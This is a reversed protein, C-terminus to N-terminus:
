ETKTIIKLPSPPAADDKVVGTAAHRFLQTMVITAMERDPPKDSLLMVRYTKALVTREAADAHLHAHSLYSRVCIRVLWFLGALALIVPFELRLLHWPEIKDPNPTKESIRNHFSILGWAGVVAIVLTALGWRLMGCWHGKQKSEWFKAPEEVERNLRYAVDLAAFKAELQKLLEEHEKAEKTRESHLDALKTEYETEHEELMQNSQRLIADLAARNGELTVGAKHMMAFMYSLNQQQQAPGKVHGQLYGLCEAAIASSQMVDKIKVIFAATPSKSHPFANFWNDLKQQLLSRVQEARNHQKYSAIGTQVEDRRQIFTSQVNHVGSQGVWEWAAREGAFFLEADDINLPCYNGWAFKFEVVPAPDAM